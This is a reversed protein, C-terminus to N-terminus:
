SRLREALSIWGALAALKEDQRWPPGLARGLDSILKQVDPLCLGLAAAARDWVEREKIRTVPLLCHESAQVLVERFFEGEATHILAHSRLTAALDPLPRGSAFLIDAGLVRYGDDSLQRALASVADTALRCSRDRCMRLRMEATEIALGAGAHFPQKSGPNGADATEIRRRELVVPKSPLGAVAVAIAWGSHARFGLAAAQNPDGEL